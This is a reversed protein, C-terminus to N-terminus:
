IVGFKVAAAGRSVISQFVFIMEGVHVEDGAPMLTLVPTQVAGLPTPCVTLIVALSPLKVAVRSTSIRSRKGSLSGVNGTTHSRLRVASIEIDSSREERM